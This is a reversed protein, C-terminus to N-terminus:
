VLIVCKTVYLARRELDVLYKLTWHMERFAANPLWSALDVIGTSASNDPFDPTRGPSHLAIAVGADGTLTM